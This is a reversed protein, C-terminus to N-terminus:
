LRLLLIDLCCGMWRLFLMVALFLSLFVVYASKRSRFVNRWAISLM